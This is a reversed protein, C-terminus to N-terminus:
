SGSASHTEHLVVDGFQVSLTVLGLFRYANVRRHHRMASSEKFSKKKRNGLFGEATARLKRVWKRVKGYIRFLYAPSSTLLIQGQQIM